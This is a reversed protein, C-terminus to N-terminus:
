KICKKGSKYTEVNIQELHRKDFKPTRRREVVLKRRRAEKLIGKRKLCGPPSPCILFASPSMATTNLLHNIHNKPFFSNALTKLLLSTSEQSSSPPPISSAQPQTILSAASISPPVISANLPLASSISQASLGSSPPIISPPMSSPSPQSPITFSPQAPFLSPSPIISSQTPNTPVPPISTQTTPPSTQKFYKPLLTHLDKLSFSALEKLVWDRM